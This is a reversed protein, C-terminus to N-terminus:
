PKAHKRGAQRVPRSPRHTGHQATSLSPHTRAHPYPRTPIRQQRLPTSPPAQHCCRSREAEREAERLGETCEILWPPARLDRDAREGACWSSSLWTRSKLERMGCATEACRVAGTEQSAAVLHGRHGLPTSAEAARHRWAEMGGHRAALAAGLPSLAMCMPLPSGGCSFPAALRTAARHPTTAARQRGQQQRDRDMGCGIGISLAGCARISPKGATTFCSM